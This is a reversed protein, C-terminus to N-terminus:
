YISIAYIMGVDKHATTYTVADTAQATGAFGEEGSAAGEIGKGFSARPARKSHCPYVEIMGLVKAGGAKRLQQEEAASREEM